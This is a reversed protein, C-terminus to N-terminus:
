PWLTSFFFITDLPDRELEEQIKRAIELGIQLADELEKEATKICENLQFSMEGLEKLFM